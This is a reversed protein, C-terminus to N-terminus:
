ATARYAGLGLFSTSTLILVKRHLGIPPPTKYLYSALYIGVGALVVTGIIRCGICDNRKGTGSSVDNPYVMTDMSLFAYLIIRNLSREIREYMCFKPGIIRDDNLVNSPEDKLSFRCEITDFIKTRLNEMTSSAEEFTRDIKDITDDTTFYFILSNSMSPLRDIMSNYITSISILTRQPHLSLHRLQYLRKTKFDRRM